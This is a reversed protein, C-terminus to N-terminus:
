KGELTAALGPWCDHKEFFVKDLAAAPATGTKVEAAFDDQCAKPCCGLENTWPEPSTCTKVSRVCDELSRTGPAYCYTVQDVCEGVATLPDRVTPDIELQADPGQTALYKGDATKPLPLKVGDIVPIPPITIKKPDFDCSCLLTLSLVLATRM